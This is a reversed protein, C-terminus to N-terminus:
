VSRDPYGWSMSLSSMKDLFRIMLASPAVRMALAVRAAVTPGAAVAAVEEVASWLTAVAAGVDDGSAVAGAALM